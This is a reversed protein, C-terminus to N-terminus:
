GGCDLFQASFPKDAAGGSGAESLGWLQCRGPLVAVVAQRGQLRSRHCIGSIGEASSALVTAMGSSEPTASM